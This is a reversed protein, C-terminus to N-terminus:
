AGQTNIPIFVAILILATHCNLCFIAEKLNLIYVDYIMVKTVLQHLVLPSRTGDCIEDLIAAKQEIGVCQVVVYVMDVVFGSERMMEGGDLSVIWPLLVQSFCEMAAEHLSTNIELTKLDVSEANAEDSELCSNGNLIEKFIASVPFIAVLRSLFELHPVSKSSKAAQSLHAQLNVVM